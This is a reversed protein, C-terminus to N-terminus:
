GKHSAYRWLGNAALLLPLGMVFPAIVLMAPVTHLGPPPQMGDLLETLWAILPLCALWLPLPQSPEPLSRAALRWCLYVGVATCVWGVFNHVPVGFYPGGQVWTWGCANGCGTGAEIPDAVVDFTTVVVAGVFAAWAANARRATLPRGFLMLNTIMFAPYLLMFWELPILPPVQDLWPQGFPPENYHYAGFIVGTRVGLDEALWTTILATAVFVGAMRRGLCCFAHLVAFLLLWLLGGPAGPLQLWPSLLGRLGLDYFAILVCAASLPGLVM